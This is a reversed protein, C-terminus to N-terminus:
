TLQTKRKSIFTSRSRGTNFSPLMHFIIQGINKDLTYQVAILFGPTSNFRNIVSLKSLPTV